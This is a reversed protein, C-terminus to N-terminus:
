RTTARRPRVAGSLAAATSGRTRRRVRQMRRLRDGAGGRRGKPPDAADTSPEALCEFLRARSQVTQTRFGRDGRQAVVRQDHRARSDSRYTHRGAASRFRADSVRHRRARCRGRAGAPPARGRARGAIGHQSRRDAATPRRQRAPRRCGSRRDVRRERARPRRQAPTGTFRHRTGLPRPAGSLPEATDMRQPRAAGWAPVRDDTAGSRVPARGHLCVAAALPASGVLRRRAAGLRSLGQLGRRQSVCRRRTGDKGARAPM